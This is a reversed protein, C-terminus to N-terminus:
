RSTDAVDRQCASIKLAAGAPVGVARTDSRLAKNRRNCLLAALIAATHLRQAAISLALRGIVLVTCAAFVLRYSRLLQPLCRNSTSSNSHLCCQHQGTPHNQVVKAVAVHADDFAQKQSGNHQGDGTQICFADHESLSSHLPLVHTGISDSARQICLADM